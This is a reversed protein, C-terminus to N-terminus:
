KENDLLQVQIVELIHAPYIEQIEGVWALYGKNYLINM